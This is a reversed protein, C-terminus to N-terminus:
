QITFLTPALPVKGLDVVTYTRTTENSDSSESAFVTSTATAVFYYTGPTGQVCASIDITTGVDLNPAPFAFPYDGTVSGCYVTYTLTDTVPIMNGDEYQIPATASLTANPAAWTPATFFLALLVIARLKM